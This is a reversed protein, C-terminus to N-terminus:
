RHDKSADRVLTLPSYVMVESVDLGDDEDPTWPAISPMWRGLGKLTLTWIRGEHDVVQSGVPLASLQTYTLTDDLLSVPEWDAIEDTDEILIRGDAANYDSAVLDRLALVGEPAIAIPDGCHTAAKVRILPADPWAPVTETEETEHDRLGDVDDRLNTGHDNTTQDAAIAAVAGSAATSEALTAVFAEIHAAVKNLSDIIATLHEPAIIPTNM